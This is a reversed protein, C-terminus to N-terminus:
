FYHYHAEEMAVTVIVDIQSWSSIAPHKTGWVDMKANEM